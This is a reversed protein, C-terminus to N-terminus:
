SVFMNELAAKALWCNLFFPMFLGQASQGGFVQNQYLCSSSFINQLLVLQKLHLPYQRRCIKKHCLSPVEISYLSYGLVAVENRYQYSFM